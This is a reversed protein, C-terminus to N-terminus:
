GTPCRSATGPWIRAAKRLRRAAAPPTGLAMDVNNTKRLDSFDIEAITDIQLSVLACAQHDFFNGDPEFLRWQIQPDTVSGSLHAPLSQGLLELSPFKEYGKLLSHTLVTTKGEHEGILVAIIVDNVHKVQGEDDVRDIDVLCARLKYLDNGKRDAKDPHTFLARAMACETATWDDAAEVNWVTRLLNSLEHWHPGSGNTQNWYNITQQQYARLMSPALQNITKAIENVRM